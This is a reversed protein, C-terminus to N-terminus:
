PIFTTNSVHIRTSILFNIVHNALAEHMCFGVNINVNYQM